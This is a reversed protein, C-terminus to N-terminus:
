LFYVKNGLLFYGLSPEFKHLSFYTQGIYYDFIPHNTLNKGKIYHNLAAEFDETSSAIQGNELCSNYMDKNVPSLLNYLKEENIRNKLYELEVYYEEFASTKKDGLIEMAKEGDFIPYVRM